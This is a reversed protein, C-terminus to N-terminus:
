YDINDIVVRSVKLGFIRSLIVSGSLTKEQELNFPFIVVTFYLNVPAVPDLKIIRDTRVLSSEPKVRTYCEAGKFEETKLLHKFFLRVVRGIPPPFPPESKLVLPFIQHQFGSIRGSM